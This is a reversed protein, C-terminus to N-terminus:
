VCQMNEIIADVFAMCYDSGIVNQSSFSPMSKIDWHSISNPDCFVDLTSTSTTQISTTWSQWYAM